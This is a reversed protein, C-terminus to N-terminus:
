LFRGGSAVTILRDSGSLFSTVSSNFGILPQINPTNTNEDAANINKSCFFM